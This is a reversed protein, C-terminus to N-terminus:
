EASESNMTTDTPDRLGTATMIYETNSRIDDYDRWHREYYGHNRKTDINYWSYDDVDNSVSVKKGLPVEVTVLVQQNRFKDRSSITFGDALGLVSDQQTIDFAFHEARAQAEKSTNGRSARTRYVHFLTDKSQEINVKVNNLWLSDHSVYRFPAGENDMNGFWRDHRAHHSAVGGENVAIYLVGTTPQQIDITEEAVAHTSFGSALVGLTIIACTIGTLWLGAFVYGLYHRQTHVGMVRRAMWVVIALMPIGLTLGLGVWAVTHQGNSAFIFYTYPLIATGGLVLAILAFLLTLAVVGAIFLFFAKFLLGIARAFGSGARKGAAVAEGARAQTAAKISNMDIREGRMEMRETASDAYPVVAWLIAYLIFLTGGLSGVFLGPVFGHGWGFAFVDGSFLGIALSVLLVTRLIWRDIGFYAALGSCVGAIMKGQRDRYFRRTARSLLSRSPVLIWLLIYVWFLVGALLVFLVRVVTPDIGTRMAIASCVGAILMDDGNRYLRGKWAADGEPDGATTQAGGKTQGTDEEAEAAAIDELRGISDIVTNVDALGICPIGQKLRDSLLEAIRDEIDNMIEEHSEERAFHGRLTDIYRKLHDYATEEIAIVRGQFNINIIKEM